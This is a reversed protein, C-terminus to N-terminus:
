GEKHINEMMDIILEMGLWSDVTALREDRPMGGIGLIYLLRFEKARRIIEKTAQLERWEMWESKTIDAM